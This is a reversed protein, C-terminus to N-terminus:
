WGALFDGVVTCWVVLQVIVNDCDYVLIMHKLLWNEESINFM